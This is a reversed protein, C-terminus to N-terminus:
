PNASPHTNETGNNQQETENYDGIINIGRGDQTVETTSYDYENWAKLWLLNTVALCVILVLVLVWLKRLSSKHGDSLLEVYAWSVSKNQKCDDCGM